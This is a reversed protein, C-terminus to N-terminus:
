QGDGSFWGLRGETVDIHTLSSALMAETVNKLSDVPLPSGGDSPQSYPYIWSNSAVRVTNTISVMAGYDVGLGNTAGAYVHLLGGNTLNLNNCTFISNSGLGLEGGSDIVVNGAVTLQLGTEELILQTNGVTLQAPNWNTVGYLRVSLFQGSLTESLFTNDSLYLTGDEAVRGVSGQSYGGTGASAQFRVGPNNGAQAVPDYIVAIRGGGGAGGGHSSNAGTATLLGNPSGAFTRCTIGISGGSGSGAHYSNRVKGNASITGYVTVTGGPADIRVVGGGPGGIDNGNAGGSGPDTPNTISGYAAGGNNGGQAFAGHGGYGGGSGYTTGSGKGPGSNTTYGKFSVNITGNTGLTFNTCAFWVRNSTLGQVFATPLTVTGGSVMINTAELHTLWNTFTLTGGTMTFSQLNQVPNTLLISGSAFTVADGESPVGAPDWNEPIFWNNNSTGTWAHPDGLSITAMTCLYIGLLAGLRIDQSRGM